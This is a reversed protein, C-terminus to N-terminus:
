ATQEPGVLTYRSNRTELEGTQEDLAVIYSTYGQHGAFDPHDVFFGVVIFRGKQVPERHWDKIKGHHPKQPVDSM